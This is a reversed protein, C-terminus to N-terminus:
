FVAQQIDAQKCAVRLTARLDTTDVHKHRDVSFLERFKPFRLRSDVGAWADVVSGVDIAVGGLEKVRHCYIKGLVGAGVLFLQGRETVHLTEMVRHFGDPWHHESATGPFKAEGRVLWTRIRGVEFSAKLLAELDRCGIVGVTACGHLIRGMAGSLQLYWHLSQDALKQHSKPLEWEKLAAFVRGYRELLNYQFRSPLGLVDASECAVRLRDRIQDLEEQSLHQEGFWTSYCSAVQSEGPLHHMAIGEGDGLRIISLPRRETKAACIMGVVSEIPERQGFWWPEEAVYGALSRCNM